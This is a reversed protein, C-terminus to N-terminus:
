FYYRSYMYKWENIVLVHMWRTKLLIKNDDDDNSKTM